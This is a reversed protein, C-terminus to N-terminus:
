RQKVHSQSDVKVVTYSFYRGSKYSQKNGKRANLQRTDQALASIVFQVEFSSSLAGLFSM